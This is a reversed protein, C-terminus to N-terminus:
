HAGCVAYRRCVCCAAGLGFLQQGLAAQSQADALAGSAYAQGTAQHLNGVNTAMQQGFGGLGAAANQGANVINGQRANLMQEIGLSFDTLDNAIATARRGSNLMGSKGLQTNIADLRSQRLPDLAESNLIETLNAGFGGLSAGGAYQDLMGTGSEVYPNLLGRIFDFQRRQEEISKNNARAQYKAADSGSDKGGM